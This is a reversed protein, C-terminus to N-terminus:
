TLAHTLDDSDALFDAFAACIRLRQYLSTLAFDKTTQGADNPQM